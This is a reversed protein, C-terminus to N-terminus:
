RVLRRSFFALVFTVALLMVGLAAASPFIGLEWYYWLRWILVENQATHLIQPLAFTRVAHAAVWIWGALLAPVVLPMTVRILTILRTAGSTYAAEELEKHIQIVAANTTRTAFALYQGVVGLVIIWITGYIRTQNFPPLLYVVILAVAVVVGPIAFSLFTMGDLIFRAPHRTRIVVWSVLLAIVMTIVGASVTLLLTNLVSRWFNPEDIVKLYNNLTVQQLMEASPPAYFPVISTWFLVFFPAGVTLLFYFVFPILAPYRWRGLNYRKPQFGRGTVVAYRDTRRLARVYFFVLVLMLLMFLIAYASALGYNPPNSRYAFFYILTSIVFIGVPVGAALPAEFSDLASVFTYIGAAFLGPVLLPMVVRRAISWFGAGSMRAADEMSPDMLRLTGVILFFFTSVGRLSDLFVLGWLSRIDLPGSELNVGVLSLVGRLLVNILGVNPSLLLLWSMAFLIGPMALPLVMLIWGFNRLPLDTREILWALLLATCMTLVTAGIAVVATNSLATIFAAQSVATIYNQLTFGGPELLTGSRFSFVILFGLPILLTWAVALVALVLLVTAADV